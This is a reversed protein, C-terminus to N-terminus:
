VESELVEKIEYELSKVSYHKENVIQEIKELKDKLKNYESREVVDETEANNLAEKVCHDNLCGHETSYCCDKCKETKPIYKAM